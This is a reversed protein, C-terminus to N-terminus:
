LGHPWLSDSTVSLSLVACCAKTYICMYSRTRNAPLLLIGIAILICICCGSRAKLIRNTLVHFWLKMSIHSIRPNPCPFYLIIRSYSTPGSLLSTSFFILPYSPASWTVCSGTSLAGLAWLQFKLLFIFYTLTFNYGLTCFLYVHTFFHIFYIYMLRYHYLYIISHM